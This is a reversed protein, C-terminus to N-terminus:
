PMDPPPPGGPPPGGPGANRPGGAGQGRGFGGRARSRLQVAFAKREATSMAELAKILATEFRTQLGANLARLQAFNESLAATDLAGDDAIIEPLQARLARVQRRSQVTQKRADKLAQKFATQAPKPMARFAERPLGRSYEARDRGKPPGMGQGFFHGAAFVNLMLSVSLAAIIWKTYQAM